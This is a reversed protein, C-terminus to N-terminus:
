RPQPRGAKAQEAVCQFTSEGAECGRADAHGQSVPPKAWQAAILLCSLHASGFYGIPSRETATSRTTSQDYTATSRARRARAAAHQVSGRARRGARTAAENPRCAARKTSAQYPTLSDAAALLQRPALGPRRVSRGGRKGIHHACGPQSGYESHVPTDALGLGAPLWAGVMRHMGRSLAAVVSYEHPIM